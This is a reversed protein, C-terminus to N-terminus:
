DTQPLSQPTLSLDRNSYFDEESQEMIASELDINYFKQEKNERM